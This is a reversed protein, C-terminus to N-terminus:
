LKRHADCGPNGPRRGGSYLAASKACKKLIVKWTKVVYSSIERVLRCKGRLLTERSEEPISKM